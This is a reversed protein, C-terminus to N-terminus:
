QMRARFKYQKDSIQTINIIDWINSETKEVWKSKWHRQRYFVILYYIIAKSASQYPHSLDFVGCTFLKM